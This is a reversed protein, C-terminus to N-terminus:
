HAFRGPFITKMQVVGHGDTPWMGRLWRECDTHIDQRGVEYDGPNIGDQALQTQLLVDPSLGTFSSYSGTANAHWLDVMVRELPACVAMDLVGVVLWLPLGIQDETM